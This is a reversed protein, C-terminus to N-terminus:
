WLGPVLRRRHEAYERYPEGLASLLAAEEVKIRIVLGVTPLVALALVSLWSGLCFGLGVLTLLLGTYSPHRVRRYPGRSVVEQESTVRVVVTFFRGLTVVAWERLAIGLWMLTLGLTFPLWGGPIASSSVAAACWVAVLVGAGVGLVVAVISGRDVRASDSHRGSRIRISVESLAFALVTAQLLVRATPDTASLSTM